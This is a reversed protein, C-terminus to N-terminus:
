KPINRLSSHEFTSFLGLSTAPSSTTVASPWLDGGRLGPRARAVGAGGQRLPRGSPLPARHPASGAKAPGQRAPRCARSPPARRVEVRCGRRLAGRRRLRLSGLGCRGFRM